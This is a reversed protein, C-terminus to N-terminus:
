NTIFDCIFVVLYMMDKQVGTEGAIVAANWFM